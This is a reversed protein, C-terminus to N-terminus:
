VLYSENMSIIMHATAVLEQHLSRGEKEFEDITLWKVSETEIDPEVFNTKDLCKAVFVETRGLFTGIHWTAAINEPVLGTEECGERIAATLADEDKEIRGKALQYKMILEGTVPDADAGFLTHAPKMFLMEIDGKDNIIYPIIGARFIKQKDNSNFSM